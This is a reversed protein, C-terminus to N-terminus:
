TRAVPGMLPSLAGTVCGGTGASTSWLPGRHSAPPGGDVIVLELFMDDVDVDGVLHLRREQLVGVRHDVGPRQGVGPVSQLRDLPADEVRHVLHSQAGVPGMHLAGADDALHHALVVRVAVGRDVVGQDPHALRPRHSQRHDVRVAIEAGEVGTRGGHAVGLGPHRRDGERHGLAQLEIGDVEPRVVVAVFGLRGHHRCGERVQQHVARGADRHPHGRVDRRVVQDLDDVGQTVQQGVRVSIQVRDHPEDRPGVEGGAAGDDAQATDTFAVFGSAAAQLDAGAGPDLLDGGALLADDERFQGVHDARLLDDLLDLRQHLGLLQLADGVDLVEGIELVRGPEHDLDLVPDIGLGQELLEVALGLQLVGEADVRNCQDFALGAREAQDLRQLDVEFVAELDGQALRQELPGLGLISQVQDLAQQDRDEVDVVHDRDDALGVVRRSGPDAQGLGELEALQLRVVDEVHLQAPQGLVGPDFQLALAVFEAGPDGLQGQQDVGLLSPAPLHAVVQQRHGLGM